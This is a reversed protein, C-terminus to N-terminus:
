TYKTVNIIPRDYEFIKTWLSRISSDDIKMLVTNLLECISIFVLLFLIICLFKKRIFRYCMNKEVIQNEFNRDPNDFLTKIEKSEKM